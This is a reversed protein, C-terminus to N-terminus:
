KFWTFATDAEPIDYALHYNGLNGSNGAAAVIARGTSEELLQDTFLTPADLGDHSGFYDGLSLNVVAPKGLAAAKAFIFDVADAVTSSWNPHDFDSSIMIIDANPAVGTFQGTANGNSAGVGAVTSGHGYFSAQDDHGTIGLDIDEANWEQGYGYPEPIRFPINESQTQDWLAIVRTTGDENQFDPHALEIGTDIFGLIVDDGLYAQPLPSAGLHVP